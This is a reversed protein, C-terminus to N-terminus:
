STTSCGASSSSPSTRSPSRRATSCSSCGCRRRGARRVPCVDPHDFTAYADDVLAAFTAATSRRRRRLAVDGRRRGRRLPRGVPRAAPRARGRRPCTCGATPRSAPSCCTPSASRRAGRGPHQRVERRTLEGDVVRLVSGVRHISTSSACTACRPRCTPRAPWTPSSSSAPRTASARRSWRASRCATASSCGPSRRAARRAPRRRRPEPLVRLALEDIPGSAPGASRASAHRPHGQAPQGAADILDGLVASRPRSRRRRGPRLVHPRRRGRGRRVGRQLQRARPWRTRRRAGDGPPGARAIEPRRRGRGSPSPWCSSSTASATPSPSTPPPSAPSARTTCTAPWSGPASPSALRHDGGQRRRRLGRRRRHPRARRLGPEPGRGAGRRLPARGRDHPHPHLQDHRQRHGDGPTIHEGALSERLPRIIPIGGAM